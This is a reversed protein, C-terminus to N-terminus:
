CSQVRSEADRPDDVMEMPNNKFFIIDILYHLRAFTILDMLDFRYLVILTVVYPEKRQVILRQPVRTTGLLDDAREVGEMTLCVKLNNRVQYVYFYDPRLRTSRRLEKASYETSMLRAYKKAERVLHELYLFPQGSCEAVRLTILLVDVPDLEM